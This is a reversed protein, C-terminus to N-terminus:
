DNSSVDGGRWERASTDTVHPTLTVGAIRCIRYPSVATRGYIYRVEEAASAFPVTMGFSLQHSASADHTTRYDYEHACWSRM